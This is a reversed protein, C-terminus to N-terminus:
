EIHRGYYDWFSNDTGNMNSSDSKIADQTDPTLDEWVMGRIMYGDVYRTYFNEPSDDKVDNWRDIDVGEGDFFASVLTFEDNSHAAVVLEEYDMISLHDALIMAVNPFSNEKDKLVLYENTMDVKYQIAISGEENIVQYDDIMGTNDIIADIQEEASMGEIDEQSLKAAESDSCGVMLLSLMGTLAIFAKKM